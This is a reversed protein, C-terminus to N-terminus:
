LGVVSVRFENLSPYQDIGYELKDVWTQGDLSAKISIINMTSPMGCMFVAPILLGGIRVRNNGSAASNLIHKKAAEQDQVTVKSLDLVTIQIYTDLFDPRLFKIPYEPPNVDYEKALVTVPTNGNWACGTGAKIFAAEAVDYDSGGVVSVVISNRIAPYNTSGFTVTADTPNSIAYCDVVNPLNLVAGRVADDTMKGNVAVSEARRTNFDIRSEEDYGAVASDENYVRDLGVLATPIIVISNPNANIEGATQCVVSGTVKGNSGINYAGTTEWLNGRVDQVIFGEPINAGSLGEFIVPCISRTALKRTMFYLEGIAEQFIGGAYRPDFQNGLEVFHDYMDKIIATFSTALQYQPTGQVKSVNDGLASQLVRWVGSNIDETTPVRYGRETIEIKPIM